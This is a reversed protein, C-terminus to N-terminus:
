PSGAASPASDEPQIGQPKPLEGKVGLVFYDLTLLDADSLVQGSPVRVVGAADRIPGVFIRLKGAKLAQEATAVRQRLSDPLSQNLGALKVVGDATGWWLKYPEWSGEHVDQAVKRYLPAWDWVASALTARPAFLSMDSHFGLAHKGRQEAAQVVAPSDQHMTLVDAGFDLLREAADREIGPGYWTSTWLVRVEADPNVSRAGLAFADIGRIVEPIPFAAVYGIINSETMGGALIGALYRAEYERGFYTGANTATKFGSAHMFVVEPYKAAAAITPDMYGFSTTFILNAGDAVLRDIAAGVLALDEPVSDIYSTREVFPLKELAARGQDHSYTWGADGVPGVYVFGARIKEKAAIRAAPAGGKGLGAVLLMAQEVRDLSPRVPQLFPASVWGRQGNAREIQVWSRGAVTDVTSGIRRVVDGQELVAIPPKDTSPEPRVNLARSAVELIADLAAKEVRGAKETEIWSASQAPAALLAAALCALVAGARRHRRSALMTTIM